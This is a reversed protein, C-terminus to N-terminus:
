AAVVESKSDANSVNHSTIPPLPDAQRPHASRCGTKGVDLFNTFTPKSM